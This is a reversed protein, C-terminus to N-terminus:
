VRDNATFLDLTARDSARRDTRRRKMPTLILPAQLDSRKAELRDRELALTNALSLLLREAAETRPDRAPRVLPRSAGYAHAAGFPSGTTLAITRRLDEAALEAAALDEATILDAFEADDARIDPPVEPPESMYRAANHLKRARVSMSDVQLDDGPQEERFLDRQAQTQSLEYVTEANSQRRGFPRARNASTIPVSALPPWDRPAAVGVEATPISSFDFVPPEPKSPAATLPEERPAGSGQGRAPAGMAKLRERLANIDFDDSVGSTGPIHRTVKSRDSEVILSHAAHLDM